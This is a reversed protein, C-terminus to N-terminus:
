PLPPVDAVTMPPPVTGGAKITQFVNVYNLIKDQNSDIWQLFGITENKVKDYGSETPPDYAPMDPMDKAFYDYLKEAAAIDGGCVFLASRKLADKSTTQVMSVDYQKSFWSM